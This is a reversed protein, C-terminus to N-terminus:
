GLLMAALLGLLATIRSFAGLWGADQASAAALDPLRGDDDALKILAPDGYVRGRDYVVTQGRRLADLIGQESADHTFIWTRCLGLPGPGHYDSDGAATLHGRGYFQRLQERLDERELVVPHVVEAGDLKRMAEADYAPWYQKAPHAAIAIGGQRHIEDIASAASLNPHITKRIGIALMHYNPTVIEEGAIVIPGGTRSSYWQGVKGVWTHNHPTMAIVDLGQRRAEIVTDWPTLTSSSFPFSHVHLDAALVQYGRLFPPSVRRPSDSISGAGISAVLLAGAVVRGPSM